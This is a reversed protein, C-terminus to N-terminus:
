PITHVPNGCGLFERNQHSCLMKGFRFESHGEWRPNRIKAFSSFPKGKRFIEFSDDISETTQVPQLIISSGYISIASIASLFLSIALTSLAATQIDFIESRSNERYTNCDISIGDKTREIPLQKRKISIPIEISTIGDDISSTSPKQRKTGASTTLDATSLQPRFIRPNKRRSDSRRISIGADASIIV